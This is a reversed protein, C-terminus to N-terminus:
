STEMGCLYLELQAMYQPSYYLHMCLCNLAVRCLMIRSKLSQSQCPALVFSSYCSIYVFLVDLTSASFFSRPGKHSPTLHVSCLNLIDQGSRLPLSHQSLPLSFSRM